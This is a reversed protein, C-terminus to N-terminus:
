VIWWVGRVMCFMVGNHSQVVEDKEKSDRVEVCRRNRTLWKGYLLM